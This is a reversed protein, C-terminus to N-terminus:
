QSREFDRDDQSSIPGSRMDIELWDLMGASAPSHAAAAGTEWEQVAQREQQQEDLEQIRNELDEIQAAIKGLEFMHGLQVNRRETLVAMAHGVNDDAAAVAHLAREIQHDLDKVDDEIAASREVLAALAVNLEQRTHM